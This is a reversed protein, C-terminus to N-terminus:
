RAADRYAGKIVRTPLWPYRERFEEYFVSHLTEQSAKYKVAYEVMEVLMERYAGEIEGLARRAYRNTRCELVVTRTLTKLHKEL